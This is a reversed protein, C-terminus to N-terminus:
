LAALQQYLDFRAHRMIWEMQESTFHMHRQTELEERVVKAQNWAERVAAHVPVGLYTCLEDLLADEAFMREYPFIHFHHQEARQVTEELSRNWEEVGRKWDRWEPWPSNPREPDRNQEMAKDHRGQFSQAVHFVNRLMYIVKCGPFHDLVREYGEFLNPLKDGVVTCADFREHLEAYYPQARRHHSDEPRHDLCFRDKEFLSPEYPQGSSLVFAYRERGMAIRPDARLLDAMATTGSRSVGCIFAYRKEEQM